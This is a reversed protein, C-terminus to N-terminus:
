IVTFVHNFHAAWTLTAGTASGRDCAAAHQRGHAALRSIETTWAYIDVPDLYVPYQGLVERLVPLSSCVVPTGLVAAELPPLGFGEAFSPFLLAQAGRILAAVAGDDLAPLEHVGALGADLRDFVAANNWGRRGVIYLNPLPKGTRALREWVDLLLAHNKRPEITSLAIFYPTSLDLGPPLGAPDATPTEVGLHAVVCAPVRGLDKFHRGVDAKTGASNCIVLDAHTAVARMKRAFAEPTGPRQFQPFDLPITDHVLVAIRVGKVQRLARFVRAELNSHGVNLYHVDVPLHRRALRGLGGRLCSAVAQRRIEAEARRRAASLGRSFRALIDPSGWRDDAIRDRIARAGDRNLLSFGAATRCLAFMPDSKALLADLYALEVRDVGTPPGLGVRSVLRTLDLCRTTM